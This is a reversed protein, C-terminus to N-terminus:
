PHALVEYSEVSELADSRYRAVRGGASSWGEPLEADVAYGRPFRVTVRVDQPDVMGQPDIALRYALAGDRDVAAAPVVYTVALTHRAQPAFEIEPRIFYRGYFSRPSVERPVGDVQVSDFTAGKPLFPAVSLTNWRTFYGERPDPLPQAYPPSDNHVEIEMRVRASGDERIAVDTSVTRRQWYDSKSPVKNQTFVGLYDHETDSLRGTLGLDDVVAQEDPSRLYVAFRRQDAAEGLVRGTGVPDNGSLLRDVFVPALARNVAKRQAPEPYDDYSGILKEVLNDGTLTGLAPVELPGSVDLLRSVAVVDIVVVGAMRRGRLSRWANALENGSVAWDPAMTALAPKVQGRHLPNGKVKRWYRPQAAGPATSLDLTEGMSLRGRDLDVTVFTQPTGGSYLMEAPNLLAVLYQRSANRGLMTPLHTLLPDVADLGDALPDVEARADAAAEALREGVLPRTDAVADLEAQADSLRAGVARLDAIVSELVDLDVNGGDLLTSEEGRVQPLVRVGTEAVGVLQDLANGLRRVDRLAGGAVPVRSWVDGGVGQVAAQLDDTESRAREVAAVADDIDGADLAEKAATLEARADEAHGPASLFPIALLALGVLVLLLAGAVTAPRIMRRPTARRSSPM